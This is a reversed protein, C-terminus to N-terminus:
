KWGNRLHCIVIAKKKLILIVCDLCINLTYLWPLSTSTSQLWLIWLFFVFCIWDILICCFSMRWTNAWCIWRCVKIKTCLSFAKISWFASPVKSKIWWWVHKVLSVCAFNDSSARCVGSAEHTSQSALLKSLDYNKKKMKAYDLLWYSRLLWIAPHNYERCFAFGTDHRHLLGLDSARSIGSSLRTEM